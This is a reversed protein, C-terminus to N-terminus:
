KKKTIMLIEPPDNPQNYMNMYVVHYKDQPLAKAMALVAEKEKAGEEHGSYLTCTVVGGTRILELAVSIGDLTDETKTTIDKDGGSLYGLNFIVAQPCEDEDDTEVYEEMNTFSDNVVVTNEIREEKLLKRTADVAKEQIDFAIVAGEPGVANSLLVTDNGNGCTADIVLDGEDIYGATMYMALDTTKTLINM